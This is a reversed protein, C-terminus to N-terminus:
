RQLGAHGNTTKDLTNGGLSTEEYRKRPVDSSADGDALHEIIYTTRNLSNVSRLVDLLPLRAECLALDDSSLNETDVLGVAQDFHSEALVGGLRLCGLRGGAQRVVGLALLNNSDHLAHLGVTDEKANVARLDATKAM